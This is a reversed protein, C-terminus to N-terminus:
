FAMDAPVAMDLPPMPTITMDWVTTDVQPNCDLEYVIPGYTNFHYFEFHLHTQTADFRIARLDDSSTLWELYINGSVDGNAHLDVLEYRDQEPNRDYYFPTEGSGDITRATYTGDARFSIEVAYTSQGVWGPPLTATGVWTGVIAWQASAFPESPNPNTATRGCALTSGDSSGGDGGGGSSGDDKGTPLAGGCGVFAALLTIAAAEATM